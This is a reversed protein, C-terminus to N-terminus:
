SPSVTAESVEDFSPLAGSNSATLSWITRM